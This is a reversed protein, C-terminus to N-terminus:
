RQLLAQREFVDMFDEAFMPQQQVCVGRISEFIGKLRASDRGGVDIGLVTTIPLFPQADRLKVNSRLAEILWRRTFADTAPMSYGVLVVASANALAAAARDWLPKLGGHKVRQVKSPGPTALGEDAPLSEYMAVANRHEFYKHGRPVRDLTRGVSMWDVSGHLKLVWSTDTPYGDLLEAPTVVHLKKANKNELLDPVRDYNFTIVTDNSELLNAWRHYPEWRESRLDATELFACCEAAMLQLAPVLIQVGWGHIFSKDEPGGIWSAQLIKGAIDDRCALDVRELFEEAHLWLRETPQFHAAAYAGRQYNSVIEEFSVVSIDDLKPYTARVRKLAESSFMEGLLPAGLARSYGAGLIWVVNGNM